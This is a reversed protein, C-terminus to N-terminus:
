QRVFKKAVRRGSNEDILELLYMGPPLHSVDIPTGAVYNAQGQLQGSLSRIGYSRASFDIEGIVINLQGYTPNPLIQVRQALTQDYVSSPGELTSCPASHEDTPRFAILYFPLNMPIASGQVIHQSATLSMVPLGFSVENGRALCQYRAPSDPDTPASTRYWDVISGFSADNVIFTNDWCRLAENSDFVATDWRMTVPLYKANVIINVQRTFRFEYCPGRNAQNSSTRTMVLKKGTYDVEQDPPFVRTIFRADLVSDYPLHSLDFEGLQPNYGRPAGDYLGLILTDRNGVADEIYIPFDINVTPPPTIVQASLISSFAVALLIVPIKLIM